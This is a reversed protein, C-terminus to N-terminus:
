LWVPWRLLHSCSPNFLQRNQWASFTTTLARLHLPYGTGLWLRSCDVYPRFLEADEDMGPVIFHSAARGCHATSSWPGLPINTCQSTPQQSFPGQQAALFRALLHSLCSPLLFAPGTGLVPDAAARACSPPWSAPLLKAPFSSHQLSYSSLKHLKFWDLVSATRQSILLTYNVMLWHVIYPLDIDAVWHLFWLAPCRCSVSAWSCNELLGESAPGWFNHKHM